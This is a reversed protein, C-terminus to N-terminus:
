GKVVGMAKGVKAFAALARDIDADSHAASIQVRIRAQGKPVVPYSFGIVYIGEKLMADAMDVALKADGIRRALALVAVPDAEGRMEVPHVAFGEAELRRRAEGDPQLAAEVRHGRRRLGEMLYAMQQEGGRWGRETNVHFTTLPPAMSGLSGRFACARYPRAGAGPARGADAPYAEAM